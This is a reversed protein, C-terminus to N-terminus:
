SRIEPNSRVGVADYLDAPAYDQYLGSLFPSDKLKDYLSFLRSEARRIILDYTVPQIVCRGHMEERPSRESREIKNGIVFCRISTSEQIHGLSDLEKVYKWCQAKQEEDVSVGARKLELIVLKSVGVEGSDGDSFDGFEPVTYCGCSGDPIIVFDPRNRSGASSSSSFLSQLVNNMSRNSTFEISEFEPGLIWLSRHFLPQLELVEDSAASPAKEKMRRLLIMRSQLEDLVTKADQVSWNQLIDHLSDLDASDVESLSDLLGYKSQSLELNALIKSVKAVDRDQISPCERAVASVFTDWKARSVTSLRGRSERNLDRASEVTKKVDEESRHEVKHSAYLSLAESLEQVREDAPDLGTWDAFVASEFETVDVVILLRKALARRGDVQLDTGPLEWSPEGAFRNGIRFAFGHFRTTRDSSDTNILTLPLEIGTKELKLVGSELYDDPIKALEVRQNNVLVGFSSDTLYRMSLYQTVIESDVSRSNANKVVIATGNPRGTDFSRVGIIEFPKDPSKSRVVQATTTQGNKTTTIEYSRGFCFAAFRGVGNRGYVKRVGSDVSITEPQNQRRDYALTYWRRLFESETMGEGNDRIQFDLSVESPWDIDVRTAGADWANAVLEAAAVPPDLLIHKGALRELFAPGYSPGSDAFLSDTENEM